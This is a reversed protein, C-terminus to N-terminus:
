KSHLILRAYSIGSQFSTARSAFVHAVSAGSMYSADVDGVNMVDMDLMLGLSLMIVNKSHVDIREVTSFFLPNTLIAVLAGRPTYQSLSSVAGHPNSSICTDAGVTRLETSEFCTRQSYRLCAHFHHEITVLITSSLSSSDCALTFHFDLELKSGTELCM